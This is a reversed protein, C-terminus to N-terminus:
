VARLLLFDHRRRYVAAPGSQVGPSARCIFRLRDGPSVEVRSPRSSCWSIRVQVTHPGPALSRVCNEGRRIDGVRKGDVYVRYRRLQAYADSEDRFVMIEAGGDSARAIPASVGRTGPETPSGATRGRPGGTKDDTGGRAHRPLLFLPGGLFGLSLQGLVGALFVALGCVAVAFAVPNRTGAGRDPPLWAGGLLLLTLGTLCAANLGCGQELWKRAEPGFYRSLAVPSPRAAPNNWYRAAQAWARASLAGLAAGGALAAWAVVDPGVEPM